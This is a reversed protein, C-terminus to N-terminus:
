EMGLAWDLSAGSAALTEFYTTRDSSTTGNWRAGRQTFQQKVDPYRKTGKFLMHELLHAMGKEGYGEHRSGVLYTIHVTVTEVGPDPLTLVRLGNPLRYETVGEVSTTKSLGGPQEAAVGGGCFGLVLIAAFVRKMYVLRFFAPCDPGRCDYRLYPALAM